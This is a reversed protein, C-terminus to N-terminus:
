DVVVVDGDRMRFAAARGEAHALKDYTFRIRVLPPKSGPPSRRLVFIRDHSAYPTLGGAAALAQLVNAGAQVPFVGPHAVEGLVSVQIPGPEELSVTVVPNNVFEKLRLQLRRALAAPTQGAAEVDNVFPLSIKGDTRVRARGSMGEQSFVRVGLVDGPAIVYETESPAGPETVADVWVYDGLHSCGAALALAAALLSTEAPSRM